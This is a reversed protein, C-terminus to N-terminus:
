NTAKKAHAFLITESSSTKGSGLAALMKKSTPYEELFCQATQARDGGAGLASREKDGIATRVFHQTKNCCDYKGGSNISFLLSPFMRTSKRTFIPIYALNCGRFFASEM